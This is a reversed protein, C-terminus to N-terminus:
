KIVTIKQRAIGMKTECIVFYTGNSLDKVSIQHIHNQTLDRFQKQFVIEGMINVIKIGTIADKLNGPEIEIENCAPNPFVNFQYNNETFSKIGTVNAQNKFVRKNADVFYAVDNNFPYLSIINATATSVESMWNIGGDTTKWLTGSNGAVYGRNANEFKICNLTATAPGNLIQWNLGGDTTKLINGNTKIAYGIDASVFSYANIFNVSDMLIETWTQGYDKTRVIVTKSNNGQYALNMFGVSDNVFNLGTTPNNSYAINRYKPLLTTTKLLTTDSKVFRLTDGGSWTSSTHTIFYIHRGTVFNDFIWPAFPSSSPGIEYTNKFNNFTFKIRQYAQNQYRFCIASDNFSRTYGINIFVSPAAFYVPCFVCTQSYLDSNSRFYNQYAGSSPSYYWYSSFFHKGDAVPVVDTLRNVMPQPAPFSNGSPLTAPPLQHWQAFVSQFQITIFLGFFLKFGRM